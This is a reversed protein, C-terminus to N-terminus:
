RAIKLTSRAEVPVGEPTLVRLRLVYDGPPLGGTAWVGLIGDVVGLTGDGIPQWTDPAAASSWELTYSGRASGRVLVQTTTILAGASPQGILAISSRRHATARRRSRCVM